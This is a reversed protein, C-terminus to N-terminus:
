QGRPTGALTNGLRDTASLNTGQRTTGETASTILALTRVPETYEADASYYRLEQAGSPITLVGTYVTTPAADWGYYITAGPWATLTIQDGDRTASTAPPLATVLWHSLGSPYDFRWRNHEDDWVMSVLSGDYYGEVDVRLSTETVADLPLVLAEGYPIYFVDVNDPAFGTSNGAVEANTFLSGLGNKLRMTAHGAHQHAFMEIRGWSYGPPLNVVPSLYNFNEIPAGSYSYFNEWSVYFSDRHVFEQPWIDRKKASIACPEYVAFESGYKVNAGALYNEHFVETVGAPLGATRYPATSDAVFSFYDLSNDNSAPDLGYFTWITIPAFWKTYNNQYDHVLVGDFYFRVRNEAAIYDLRISHVVGLQLYYPINNVVGKWHGNGTINLQGTVKDNCYIGCYNGEGNYLAIGFGPEAPFAGNFRFKFECSYDHDPSWKQKQTYINWAGLYYTEVDSEWSVDFYYDPSHRLFSGHTPDVGRSRKVGAGGIGTYSGGDLWRSTFHGSFDDVYHNTSLPYENIYTWGSERNSMGILVNDVYRFVRLMYKAGDYPLGTVPINVRGEEIPLTAINAATVSTHYVAEPHDPSDFDVPCWYLDDRWNGTPGNANYIIWFGDSAVHPRYWSHTGGDGGPLPYTSLRAFDGIGALIIPLGM